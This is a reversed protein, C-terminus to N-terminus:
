TRQTALRSLCSKSCRRTQEPAFADSPKHRSRHRVHPLQEGKHWVYFWHHEGPRWIREFLEPPVENGNTDVILITQALSSPKLSRRVHRYAVTMVDCDHLSICPLPCCVDDDLRPPDAQQDCGVIVYGRCLEVVLKRLAALDSPKETLTKSLVQEKSPFVAEPLEGLLEDILAERPQQASSSAAALDIHVNHTTMLQQLEADTKSTLFEDPSPVGPTGPLYITVAPPAAAAPVATSAM